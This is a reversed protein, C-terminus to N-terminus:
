LSHKTINKLKSLAMKKEFERPQRLIQHFAATKEIKLRDVNKINQRSHFSPPVLRSHHHFIVFHNQPFFYFLYKFFFSATRENNHGYVTTM